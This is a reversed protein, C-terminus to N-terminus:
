SQGLATQVNGRGQVRVAHRLWELFLRDGDASVTVTTDGAPAVAGSTPRGVNGPLMAAAALQTSASVDGTHAEIGET